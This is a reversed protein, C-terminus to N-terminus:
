VGLSAGMTSVNGTGPTFTFTLALKRPSPISLIARFISDQGEEVRYRSCDIKGAVYGRVSRLIRANINIPANSISLKFIQAIPYFYRDKM